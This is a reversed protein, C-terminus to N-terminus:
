RNLIKAKDNKLNHVQLLALSVKVLQTHSSYVLYRPIWVPKFKNKFAFISQFNYFRNFYNFFVELGKQVTSSDPISDKDLKAAFGLSIEKVGLLKLHNIAEVICADGIGNPCNESRLTLDLFMGKNNKYPYFSCVELIEGTQSEAVLLLADSYAPFPFYNMSFGMKINKHKNEHCHHMSSVASMIKWPITDMTYWSFKIGYKQAHIVGKRLNRMDSGNLCFDDTKIIADYGIKLVKMGLKKYLRIHRRTTEYFVVDFGNKSLNEFLEILFSKIKQAPGTPDGLVVATNLSTKYAVLSTGDKSLYYKKDPMLSFYSLPNVGFHSIIKKVKGLSEPSEATFWSAPAFLSSFAFILLAITITSISNEFWFARHTTPILTDHGINLFTFEYDLYVNQITAPNRFQGNLLLFGFITYGVLFILSFLFTRIRTLGAIKSTPVTFQHRYLFLLSLLLLAFSAEEIDLGKFIHLIFSLTLTFITLYWASIKRSSIGFSLTILLFGALITLTRSYNLFDISFFNMLIRNRIPSHSYFSSYINIFGSILVLLSIIKPAWYKQPNM